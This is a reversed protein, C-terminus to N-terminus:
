IVWGDSGKESSASMILSGRENKKTCADCFKQRKEEKMQDSHSSVKLGFRVIARLFIPKFHLDQCRPKSHPNESSTSSTEAINWMSLVDITPTFEGFLFSLTSSLSNDYNQKWLLYIESKQKNNPQILFLAM